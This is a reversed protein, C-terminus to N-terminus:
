INLIKDVEEDSIQGTNTYGKSVGYKLVKLVQDKSMPKGKHEFCRYSKDLQQLAGSIDANM